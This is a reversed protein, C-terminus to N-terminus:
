SNIYVPGVKDNASRYETIIAAIKIMNVYLREIGKKYKPPTNINLQM